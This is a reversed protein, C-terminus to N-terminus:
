ASRRRSGTSRANSEPQRQLSSSREFERQRDFHAEGGEGRGVWGLGVWQRAWVEKITRLAQSRITCSM